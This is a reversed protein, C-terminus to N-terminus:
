LKIEKIKYGLLNGKADNCISGKSRHRGTKHPKNTQKLNSPRHTEQKTM